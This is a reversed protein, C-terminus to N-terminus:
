TVAPDISALGYLRLRLDELARDRGEFYSLAEARALKGLRIAEEPEGLLRRLAEALAAADEPPVLIGTRGPLVIDRIGGLDAGVLACGALGAERLAMPHGEEVRSALVAILSRSFVTPMDEARVWGLFPVRERIGLDGALLELAAREKGEGAIELIVGPFEGAVSAFARLLIDVGKGKNLRAACILRAPVAKAVEPIDTRGWRPPNPLQLIREVPVGAQRAVEGTFGAIPVVLDARRLVFREVADMLRSVLRSGYVHLATSSMREVIRVVLPARRGFLRALGAGAGLYPTRCLVIGRRPRTVILGFHTLWALLLLMIWPFRAFPIRPGRVRFPGWERVRNERDRVGWYEVTWGERIAWPLDRDLWWQWKARSDPADVRPVILELYIIRKAVPRGM